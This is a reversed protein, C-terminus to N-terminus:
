AAQRPQTGQKKEGGWVAVHPPIPLYTGQGIQACERTIPCHACYTNILYDARHPHIDIFDINTGACAAQNLNM